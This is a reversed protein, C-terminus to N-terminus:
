FVMLGKSRTGVSKPYIVLRGVSGGVHVPYVLVWWVLWKELALWGVIIGPRNPPLRKMCRVSLSFAM